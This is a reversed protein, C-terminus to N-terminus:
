PRAQRGDIVGKGWVCLGFVLAVVGVSFLVLAPTMWSVQVLSEGGSSISCEIRPPLYWASIMFGHELPWDDPRTPCWREDDLQASHNVAGWTLWNVLWSVVVAAAGILAIVRGRRRARRPAGLWPIGQSM